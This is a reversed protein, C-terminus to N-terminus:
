EVHVGHDVLTGINRFVPDAARAGCARYAPDTNGKIGVAAADLYPLLSALSAPTFYGNTSCGIMLDAERAARALRSFTPYSVTPENLAFVIGRCGEKHARQVIMEPSKKMLSPAFEPVSRTLLESVCGSCAFNCGITSVQIFKGQPYFHLLLMTEISIPYEVLYSDPYRETIHGDLKMYMRCRGASGQPIECRMECIDCPTTATM